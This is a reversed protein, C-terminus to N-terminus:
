FYHVVAWVAVIVGWSDTGLALAVKKAAVHVLTFDTIVVVVPMYTPM